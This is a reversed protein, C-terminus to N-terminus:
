PARAARPGHVGLATFGHVGDTNETLRLTGLPKRRRLSYIAVATGRETALPHVTRRGTVLLRRGDRGFGFHEVREFAAGPRYPDGVEMVIEAREVDVVTVRNSREFALLRDDPSFRPRTVKGEIECVHRPEGAWAFPVWREVRGIRIERETAAAVTRGDNGIAVITNELPETKGRPDVILTDSFTELLLATGDPTF